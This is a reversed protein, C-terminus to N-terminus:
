NIIEFERLIQGVRQGTLQVKSDRGIKAFSWKRNNEFLFVVRQKREDAEFLRKRNAADLSDLIEKMTKPKNEQLNEDNSKNIKKEIKPKEIKSKQAIDNEFTQELNEFIDEKKNKDNEFGKEINETGNKEFVPILKGNDGKRYEPLMKPKIQQIKGPLQKSKVIELNLRDLAADIDFHNYSSKQLKLITDIYRKRNEHMMQLEKIASDSDDFDHSMNLWVVVIDRHRVVWFTLFCLAILEIIIGLVLNAGRFSLPLGVKEFTGRVANNFFSSEGAGNALVTNASESLSDIQKQYKANEKRLEQNRKSYKDKRKHYKTERAENENFKISGNNKEIQKQLNNRREIITKYEDSEKSAVYNERGLESYSAILSISMAAFAAVWFLPVLVTTKFKINKAKQNVDESKKEALVIAMVFAMNKAGDILIGLSIGMVTKFIFEVGIATATLWHYTLMCTLCMSFIELSWSVVADSFWIATVYFPKKMEKIDTM